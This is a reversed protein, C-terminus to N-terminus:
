TLFRALKGGDLPRRKNALAAGTNGKKKRFGPSPKLNGISGTAGRRAEECILNM